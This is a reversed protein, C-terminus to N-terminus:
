KSAICRLDMLPPDNVYEGVETMFV